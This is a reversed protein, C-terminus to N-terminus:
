TTIYALSQLEVAADVRVDRTRNIEYALNVVSLAVGTAIFTIWM